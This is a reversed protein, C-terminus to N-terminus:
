GALAHALRQLQGRVSGDIVIEGADIVAGGLLDPDVAQSIQIDRGFRRKLAVKLQEIGADDIPAPARVTVDLVKEAERKLEGYLTAIEPLVGLRGNDALVRLFRAYDTGAEEGPPTVLDVLQQESARPDGLLRAVRADGAVGASLALKAAWDGLTGHSRALEFAARAYPRALTLTSSM